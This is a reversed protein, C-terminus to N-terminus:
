LWDLKLNKISEKYEPVKGAEGNVKRYRVGYSPKWRELWRNSATFNQFKEPDLYMKIELVEKKLM